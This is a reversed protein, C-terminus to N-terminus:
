AALLALQTLKFYVLWVHKWDINYLAIFLCIILLFAQNQIMKLSPSWFFYCILNLNKHIPNSYINTSGFMGRKSYYIKKLSILSHGFINVLFEGQTNNERFSGASFCCSHNKKKLKQEYRNPDRHWTDIFTQCPRNDGWQSNKIM